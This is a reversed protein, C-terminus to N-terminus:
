AAAPTEYVEAYWGTYVTQDTENGTKAKVRGDPMPTASITLKEAVPEIKDEKTQSELSPRTAVCNYLVHRIAKEDGSFEFLLAFASGHAESNEILVKKNDLTEGLIDTRFSEPVLAIELDGEYGNNAASKYYVIGDAYFPSIDGQADLSISVSGPIPVPTGFTIKGDEAVTIKAYHTNKLNYKVKNM